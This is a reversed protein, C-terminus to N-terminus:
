SANKAGCNSRYEYCDLPCSWDMGDSPVWGVARVGYLDGLGDHATNKLHEVLNSARIHAIKDCYQFKCNRAFVARFYSIRAQRFNKHGNKDECFPQWSRGGQNVTCVGYTTFAIYATEATWLATRSQDRITNRHHLIKVSGSHKQGKKAMRWM